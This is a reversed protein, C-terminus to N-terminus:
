VEVLAPFGVVFMWLLGLALALFAVGLFWFVAARNEPQKGATGVILIWGAVYMLLAFGITILPPISITEVSYFFNWHIDAIVPSLAFAVLAATAAVFVIRWLRPLAM